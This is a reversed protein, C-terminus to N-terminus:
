YRKKLLLIEFIIGINATNAAAANLIIGDAFLIKIALWFKLYPKAEASFNISFIVSMSLM